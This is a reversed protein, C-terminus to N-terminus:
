PMPSSPWSSGYRTAPLPSGSAGPMANLTSGPCRGRPGTRRGSRPCRPRRPRRAPRREVLRRAVQQDDRASGVRREATRALPTDDASRDAERGVGLAWRHSVKERPAVLGRREGSSGARGARGCACAAGPPGGAGARRGRGLAGGRPRALGRRRRPPRGRGRASRRRGGRAGGVGDTAGGRDGADSSRRRAAADGRAAGDLRPRGDRRGRRGAAPRGSRSRHRGRGPRLPSPGCRDGAGSRRSRGARGGLEAPEDLAPGPDRHVLEAAPEADRAVVVVDRRDADAVLRQEDAQGGASAGSSPRAARAAAVDAVLQREVRRCRDDDAHVRHPGHGALQDSRRCRNPTARQVPSDGLGVKVRRDAFSVKVTLLTM